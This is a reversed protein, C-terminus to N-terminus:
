IPIQIIENYLEECGPLIDTQYSSIKISKSYFNYKKPFKKQYRNFLVPDKIKLPIRNYLVMDKNLNRYYIKDLEFDAPSLCELVVKQNNYRTKHIDRINILNCVLLEEFYKPLKYYNLQADNESLHYPFKLLKFIVKTLLLILHGLEPLSKSNFIFKEFNYFFQYIKNRFLPLDPIKNYDERFKHLNKENILLCIGGLYNNIPKSKGFSYILCNGIDGISLGEENTAKGLTLACDEIVIIKWKISLDQILSTNCCKGFMHQVIIAFTKSTVKRALDDPNYTFNRTELDVLVPTFGAETVSKIVEICTFGPVIVENKTKLKQAAQLYWHLASRAGLFKFLEINGETITPSLLAKFLDDVQKENNKLPSKLEQYSIYNRIRPRKM